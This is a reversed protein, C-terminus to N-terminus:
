RSYESSQGKDFLVGATGFAIAAYHPALAPMTQVLAETFGLVYFPASVAQALFLVIGIAGGFEPGLVRSILFYAGGGRVQMNTSIASASLATLVTISKAIVLIAIAGLIGAEGIVFNARMFMIVGLITLTCPTFVGGFAGFLNRSAGGAVQQPKSM